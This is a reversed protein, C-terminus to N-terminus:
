SLNLWPRAEELRDSKKRNHRQCLFRLNGPNSTGGRSTPFVHDIELRVHPPRAGCTACRLPTTFLLHLWAEYRIPQRIHRGAFHLLLRKKLVELDKFSWKRGTKEKMYLAFRSLFNKEDKMAMIQERDEALFTVMHECLSWGVADLFSAKSIGLCALLREIVAESDTKPEQREKM